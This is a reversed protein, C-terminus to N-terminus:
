AERGALYAAVLEAWKAMMGAYGEALEAVVQNGAPSLGSMVYRVKVLSRGAGAASVQVIVRGMRSGPTVRGYEVRRGARDLGTVLWHTLEEGAGTLWVQDLALEGDPPFVFTPQWGPVWLLEGRATFLPFTEEPPLAVEFSGECDIHRAEFEM